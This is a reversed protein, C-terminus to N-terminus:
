DVDNSRDGYLYQEFNTAWDPPGKLHQRLATDFFSQSASEESDPAEITLRVKSNPPLAIKDVPHLVRGDFVANTIVVM